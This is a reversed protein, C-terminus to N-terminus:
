KYNDRIYALIEQMNARIESNTALFNNNMFSFILVKGRKTILFGSLSHNNALTGTKAFIYPPTGKYWNKITGSVGGVALLSLLRKQPTKQYIMKWISVMNRPTVLNYRSLGSGDVWRFKDPLTTLQTQQMWRMAPGVELTDSIVQSCVMLLQEALFNDSTQMMERYVSDAPTSFLTNATHPLPYQLHRVERHLTDQLLMLFLSDSTIFPVEVNYKNEVHPPHFTFRNTREARKFLAKTKPEAIATTQAFRGPDVLLENSQLTASVLNSYIPFPSPEPQFSGNYDDWAWGPGFRQAYYNSSSFYINKPVNKLFNYTRRNDFVHKNLFSPDGTGWIIISDAHYTYRLAPISDGLVSLCTLLTIVKVNSGPTFYKQAQYEFVMDSKAIDYLAFGTHDNFTADTKILSKKLVKQFSPTCSVISVAIALVVFYTPIKKLLSVNSSCSM